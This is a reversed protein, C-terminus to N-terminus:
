DFASLLSSIISYGNLNLFEKSNHLSMDHLATTFFISALSRYNLGCDFLSQVDVKSLQMTQM